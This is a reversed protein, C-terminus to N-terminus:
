QWLGVYVPMQQYLNALNNVVRVINYKDIVKNPWRGTSPEDNQFYVFAIASVISFVSMLFGTINIRLQSNAAM